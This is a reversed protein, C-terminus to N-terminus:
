RNNVLGKETKEVFEQLAALRYRVSKGIRVVPILGAKTWTALSRESIALMKAAERPVVLLPDPETNTKNQVAGAVFGSVAERGVPLHNRDSMTLVGIANIASLM